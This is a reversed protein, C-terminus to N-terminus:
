QGHRDLYDLERLRVVALEVVQDNQRTKAIVRVSFLGPNWGSAASGASEM